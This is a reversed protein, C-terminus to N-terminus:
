QKRLDEDQLTEVLRVVDEGHSAVDVERDIARLIGQPDIVFSVREAFPRDKMLVGYKAAASGDPDSLLPFSLKETEHFKKQDAVSDLSV